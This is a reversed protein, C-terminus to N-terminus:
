TSKDQPEANKAASKESEQATDEVASGKSDGESDVKTEEERTEKVAAKVEKAFKRRQDRVAKRKFEREAEKEGEKRRRDEYTEEMWEPLNEVAKDPDKKHILLYDQLDAPSFDHDPIMASFEKALARLQEPNKTEALGADGGSGETPTAESSFKTSPLDVYMRLFIEEAQKKSANTFAVRVSIRGARVLAADLAEPRNTTLILTHGEPAVVGDIANLLGSLTVRSTTGGVEDDSEIGDDNKSTSAVAGEPMKSKRRMGNRRSAPSTGKRNLGATDVDELLLLSRGPLQNLLSILDSDTLEHDLLTLNYVDLNFKSALALAFSTKGVGPPGHFLYGRRYPIGHNAYFAMTAEDLYEAVDAVVRDKQAADLIVTDLARRPKSTLRSWTLRGGYGGSYPRRIITLSREKDKNVYYIHEILEKIPATSRGLCSVSM